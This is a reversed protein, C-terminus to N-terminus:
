PQAGDTLALMNNVDFNKVPKPRGVQTKHRPKPSTNQRIPSKMGPMAKKNITDMKKIMPSKPRQMAKSAATGTLYHPVPKPRPKTKM